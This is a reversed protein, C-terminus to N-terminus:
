QKGAKARGKVSLVTEESFVSVLAKRVLGKLGPIFPHLQLAIQTWSILETLRMWCYVLETWPSSRAIQYSRVRQSQALVFDVFGQYTYRGSAVIDHYADEVIASTLEERQMDNLVQELNSFDRKLELYHHGPALIGNYHGEVLVQCTRTACSELHRPSLAVYNITGDLGPFCNQEVEEFSADPHQQQYSEIRERLTGDKDPVSSGGEVSITFQCRLLFEYWADGWLTDESRTSIDTSFGKAPAREAFVEAIQQRLLGHRGLWPGSLWTRYGIGINRPQRKEALRDIRALTADNLYGTLVNFFKVRDFDVRDYLKTWETEPGVSFVIDIEFEDLFDMLVNTNQHEDQPFAIKVADLGKLDRAKELLPEFWERKIRNALFLTGFVVIDFKVKKLYSPVSRNSLNLYFCNHDSYHRFCYLQDWLTARMPYQNMVYIVLINLKRGMSKFRASVSECWWM